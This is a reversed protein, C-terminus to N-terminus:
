WSDLLFYGGRALRSPSRQNPLAHGPAPRRAILPPRRPSRSSSHHANHLNRGQEENARRAIREDGWAGREGGRAWEGPVRCSSRWPSKPWCSTPGIPSPCFCRLSGGFRELTEVESYGSSAIIPTTVREAHLQRAAEAGGMVPMTMDLVIVDIEEGHTRM